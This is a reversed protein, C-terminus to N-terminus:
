VVAPRPSNRYPVGPDPISDLLEQRESAPTVGTEACWRVWALYGAHARHEDESGGQTRPRIERIVCPREGEIVLTNDRHIVTGERGHYAPPGGIWPDTYSPEIWALGGPSEFVAAVPRIMGQVEVGIAAFTEALASVVAGDRRPSPAAQNKDSM